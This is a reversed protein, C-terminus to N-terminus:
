SKRSRQIRNYILIEFNWSAWGCLGDSQFQFLHRLQYKLFQLSASDGFRLDSYWFDFELANYSSAFAYYM